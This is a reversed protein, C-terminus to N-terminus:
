AIEGGRHELVYGMGRIIHLLRPRGPPDLKARLRKGAVDVVNTNSDFNIDWVLEAITTKSIIEGERRALVALLGFEEATLTLQQGARVARRGLIDLQLDAIAIKTEEGGSRRIIAQLRALLDLFSFPKVLYDDAGARFGKLRDDIVDRANLM